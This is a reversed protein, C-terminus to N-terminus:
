RLLPLNGTLKQVPKRQGYLAIGLYTISDHTATELLRAYEDYTRTRQSCDSFDVVLVDAYERLARSRLLKIGETDSTLIPIPITTIGVHRCGDGDMLDPGVIAEVRRGLTLSLVAATNAILGTPLNRDVIIAAKVPQEEASM